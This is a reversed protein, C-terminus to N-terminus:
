QIFVTDPGKPVEHVDNPNFGLTVHLDLPGVNFERRLDNVEPWDVVVYYAKNGEKEAEGVGVWRPKSKIESLKKFYESMQEETLFDRDKPHFSSLTIHYISEGFESKGGDRELKKKQLFKLIKIV